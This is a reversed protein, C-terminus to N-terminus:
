EGISEATKLIERSRASADPKVRSLAFIFVQILNESPFSAEKLLVYRADLQEILRRQPSSTRATLLAVRRALGLDPVVSSTQSMEITRAEGLPYRRLPLDLYGPAVIVADVRSQRIFTAADPWDEKAYRFSYGLLKGPALYYASLFFAIALGVVGSAVVRRWGQLSTMGAALLVLLFPVQFALYRASALQVWPAFLYLVLWPIVLLGFFLLAEVKRRSVLLWGRWCLYVLISLAPVLVSGEQVIRAANWGGDSYVAVGYGAFFRALTIPLFLSLPVFIRSESHYRGVVWYAWPLFAMVVIFRLAMWRKADRRLLLWYVTEHALLVFAALYHTYLLLISLGCYRYLGRGTRRFQLFVLTAVLTLLILLSYNRNEQSFYILFPSTATLAVAPTEAGPFLERAVLAVCLIALVGFIAPLVRVAFNSDGFVAVFEHLLLRYLPPHVFEAFICDRIPRLAFAADTAEDLWLPQRGLEIFRL